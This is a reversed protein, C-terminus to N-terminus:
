EFHMRKLEDAHKRFKFFPFFFLLDMHMRRIGQVLTISLLLTFFAYPKLDVQFSRLAFIGGVVLTAILINYTLKNM